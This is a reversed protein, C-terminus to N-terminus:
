AALRERLISLIEGAVSREDELAEGSYRRTLYGARGLTADRQNDRDRQPGRHQGGDAEVVFRAEPWLFDVEYDLLPVNVAPLPLSYTRCISLVIGELLSRIRALPLRRCDALARLNALGKRGAAGNLLQHLRVRDLVELFEAREFRSRLENASISHTLDFLTRTATTTPIGYRHTLDIPEFSRPRHVLIGKPNRKNNRPLVLHITGTAPTRELGLHRAASTQALAAGEGGALVAALYRGDRSLKPHGVAYVGRHLRFLHGAGVWESITSDGLGAALLQTTSIVGHQRAAAQAIRAAPPGVLGPMGPFIPDLTPM